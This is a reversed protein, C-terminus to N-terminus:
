YSDNKTALITTLRIDPADALLSDGVKSLAAPIKGNLHEQRSAEDEFTDFIGYTHDDIQFAYWTRTAPEDAVIKSGGELFAALENESGPKAKLLALVGLKLTM